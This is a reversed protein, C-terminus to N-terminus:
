RRSIVQLQRLLSLAFNILELKDTEPAYFDHALREHESRSKGCKLCKARGLVLDSELKAAEATLRNANSTLTDKMDIIGIRRKAM